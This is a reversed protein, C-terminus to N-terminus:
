KTKIKESVLVTDKEESFMTVTPPVTPAHTITIIPTINTKNRIRYADEYFSNYILLNSLPKFNIMITIHM